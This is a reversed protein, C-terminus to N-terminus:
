YSKTVVLSASTGLLSSTVDRVFNSSAFFYRVVSLATESTFAPLVQARWNCGCVACM